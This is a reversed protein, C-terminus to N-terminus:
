ITKHGAAKNLRDMISFGIGIPEFATIYAKEYGKKDLTRLATYINKAIEEYSDGLGIFETLFCGMFSRGLAVSKIGNKQDEALKAQIKAIKELEKGTVIYIECNPSYHKYKMGPSKPAANTDSLNTDLLVDEDLVEQLDKKTIYGPRLITVKDGTTDVVTSEIGINAEGGLVIMDVKGMFEEVLFNESTISPKGSINASPAAIPVGSKKIIDDAIKNSPMRIAVTELGGTTTMPVSNKKNTIITIPGPWFHEAIKKAQESFDKAVMDVMDMDCVHVILPNDSPRGKALYIKEAAQSKMANAGIGYVTETPFILLGSKKIIKAAEKIVEEYNTTAIKRIITEM